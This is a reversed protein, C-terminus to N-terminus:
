GKLRLASNGRHLLTVPPLTERFCVKLILDIKKLFNCMKEPNQLVSHMKRAPKRVKPPKTSLKVLTIFEPVATNAKNNAKQPFDTYTVHFGLVQSLYQLEEKPECVKTYDEDVTKQSGTFGNSIRENSTSSSPRVQFFIAFRILIFDSVFFFSISM